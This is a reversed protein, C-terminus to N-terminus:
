KDENKDKLELINITVYDEKSGCSASVAVTGPKKGATFWGDENIKGMDDPVLKWQCDPKLTDGTSNYGDVKIQVSDGPMLNMDDPYVRIKELPKESETRQSYIFWYVDSRIEQAGTGTLVESTIQWAYKKGEELVEAYNPYLFSSTTLGKEQFVPINSTIDDASKQDELVEYLTFNYETMGGFWQFYPTNEFIIDPDSDLENGPAILDIGSVPESIYLESSVKEGLPNGNDDFLSVTYTYRGPPIQGNQVATEIIEDSDKGIDFSDFQRNDFSTIFGIDELAKNASVVLGYREHSLETVVHINKQGASYVSITFLLPLNQLNSFDYDSLYISQVPYIIIMAEPDEELATVEFIAPLKQTPTIVEFGLEGTPTTEEMSIKVIMLEPSNVLISEVHIFNDFELFDVETEGQTFDTEYGQIILQVSKGQFASPPNVSIIEGQSHAIETLTIFMIFLGIISIISGKNKM